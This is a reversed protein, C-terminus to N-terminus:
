SNCVTRLDVGSKYCVGCRYLPSNEESFGAFQIKHGVLMERVDQPGDPLVRFEKLEPSYQFGARLLVREADEDSDFRAINGLRPIGWVHGEVVKLIPCHKGETRFRRGINDWLAQDTNYPPVHDNMICSRKTLM